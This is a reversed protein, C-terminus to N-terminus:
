QLMEAYNKCYPFKKGPMIMNEKFLLHPRFGTGLNGVMSRM